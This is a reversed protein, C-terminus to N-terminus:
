TENPASPVHGTRDPRTRLDGPDPGAPLDAVREPARPAPRAARRRLPDRRRRRHPRPPTPHHAALRPRRASRARAGGPSCSGPRHPRPVRSPQRPVRVLVLHVSRRPRRVASSRQHEGRAALLPTAAAPLPRGIRPAGPRHGARRSAGPSRPRRVPVPRMQRRCAALRHRRQPGRASQHPEPDAVDGGRALRGPDHLPRRRRPGRSRVRDLRREGRRVGGDRARACGGMGEAGDDTRMRERARV